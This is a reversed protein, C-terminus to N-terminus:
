MIGLWKWQSVAIQTIRQIEQVSATIESTQKSSNEALKRVEDAVVAFGARSEPVPPRLPRM